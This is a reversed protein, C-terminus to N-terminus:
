GSSLNAGRREGRQSIDPAPAIAIKRPPHRRRAGQTARAGILMPLVGRHRLPVRGRHLHRPRLHFHAETRFRGDLWATMPIIVVAAMGYATMVWAIDTQTADFNGQVYRLAVNVGIIDLLVLVVSLAVTIAIVWNIGNRRAARRADTPSCTLPDSGANMMRFATEQARAHTGRRRHGPSFSRDRDEVYADQTYELEKILGTRRLMGAMLMGSYADIMPPLDLDRRVLGHRQAARLYDCLRERM